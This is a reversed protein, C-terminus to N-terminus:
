QPPNDTPSAADPPLAGRQAGDRPDLLLVAAGSALVLVEGARDVVTTGPEIERQWFPSSPNAVDFAALTERGAGAYRRLFLTPRGRVTAPLPSRWGRGLDYRLIGTAVDFEGAGDLALDIRIETERTKRDRSAKRSAAKSM